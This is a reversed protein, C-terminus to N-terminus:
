GILAFLDSFNTLMLAIGSILSIGALIGCILLFKKHPFPKSSSRCGKLTLLRAGGYFLFPAITGYFFLVYGLMFPSFMMSMDTYTGSSVLSSLFSVGNNLMHFLMPILLNQTEYMLYALLVGLAGTIFFRYFDLHFIGFLIGILILQVAIIRIHSFSYMIFGRHLAEECLPPLIVVFIFGLIAPVTGMYDSIYPVTGFMQEPFIAGTLYTIVTSIHTGAFYLVIIGLLHNWCPKRIPFVERFPARSLLASLIALLLLAIELIATAYLGLDAPLLFGAVIQLLICAIFSLIGMRPTVKKAKM